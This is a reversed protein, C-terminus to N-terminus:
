KKNPSVNDDDDDDDDDDDCLSAETLGFSHM